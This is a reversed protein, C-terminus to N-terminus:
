VYYFLPCLCNFAVVKPPLRISFALYFLFFLLFYYLILEDIQGERVFVTCFMRKALTFNISWGCVSYIIIDNIGERITDRWLHCLIKMSNISIKPPNRLFRHEDADDTSLFVYRSNFIDNGFNTTAHPLKSGKHALTALLVQVCGTKIPHLLFSNRHQTTQGLPAVYPLRPHATSRSGGTLTGRPIDVGIPDCLGRHLPVGNPHSKM